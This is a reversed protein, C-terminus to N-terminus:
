LDDLEGSVGTQIWCYQECQDFLLLRNHLYLEQTPLSKCIQTMRVGRTKDPNVRVLVGDALVALMGADAAFRLPRSAGPVGALALEASLCVSPKEGDLWLGQCHLMRKPADYWFALLTQEDLPYLYEARAAEGACDALRVQATVTEQGDQLSFVRFVPPANNEEAAFLCLKNGAIFLQAQFLNELLINTEGSKLNYRWLQHKANAEDDGYVWYLFPEHVCWQRHVCGTGVTTLADGGSARLLLNREADCLLIGERSSLFDRINVSRCFVDPKGNGLANKLPASVKHGLSKGWDKGALRGSSPIGLLAGIMEGAVAGVTSGANAYRDKPRTYLVGDKKLYYWDDGLSLLRTPKGNEHELKALLEGFQQAAPSICPTGDDKDNELADVLENLEAVTLDKAKEMIATEEESPCASAPQADSALVPHLRSYVLGLSVTEQPRPIQLIRKEDQQIQPLAAAEAGSRGALMDAVFYWQSHGGTLLVLDVAEPATKGQTLCGKVLQPFAPLYTQLATELAQRDIPPMPPAIIGSMMLLMSVASCVTVSRGKKLEPSLVTEKWQKIAACQTKQFNELLPPPAGSKQLYDGLFRLITQDIEAGGFLLTSDAGPWTCLIENIPQEQLTYRCLVLDSTGAGMDLLLITIPHNPRLYGAQQLFASSVEMAGYIAATAEDMGHVNAFGARAAAERMFQATEATWKAPYSVYAFEEDEPEGFYARQEAYCEYLYRLFQETLKRANIRQVPDKSELQVKFNCFISGGPYPQQAEQGFLVRGDPFTQVVTPVAMSGQGDFLVSKADLRDQNAPTGDDAYRKVKVFSTSTGFDIGIMRLFVM